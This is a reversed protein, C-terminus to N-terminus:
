AKRANQLSKIKKERPSILPYNALPYNECVCECQSGVGVSGVREGKGENEVFFGGVQFRGWVGRGPVGIPVRVGKCFMGGTFVVGSNRGLKGPIKSPRTSCFM